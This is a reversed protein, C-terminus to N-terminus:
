SFITTTNNNDTKGLVLHKQSSTKGKGKKEHQEQTKEKHHKEKEKKSLLSPVLNGVGIRNMMGPRGFSGQCDPERLLSPPPALPPPVKQFILSNWYWPRMLLYM